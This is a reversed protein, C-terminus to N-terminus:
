CFSVQQLGNFVSDQREAGPLAWTYRVHSPLSPLVAEFVSRWSPDCVIVVEGVERMSAFLRLSYTAIPQGRLQLYQKPISAGM